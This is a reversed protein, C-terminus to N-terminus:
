APEQLICPVRGLQCPLFHCGLLVCDKLSRLEMVTLGRGDGSDAWAPGQGPLLLLKLSGPSKQRSQEKPPLHGKTIVEDRPAKIRWGLHQAALMIAITRKM